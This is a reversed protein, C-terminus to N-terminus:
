IFRYALVCINEDLYVNPVGCFKFTAMAAAILNSCGEVLVVCFSFHLFNFNFHFRKFDLSFLFLNFFPRDSELWGKTLVVSSFLSKWQTM